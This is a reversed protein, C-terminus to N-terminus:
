HGLQRVPKEGKREEVFQENRVLMIYMIVVMHRAIAVIAKNETVGKALLKEYKNRFRESHRVAVRANQILMSRLLANGQKTIHGRRETNSSQYVSPVLGLYSCLKKYSSFRGIDCIESAVALSTLHGVGKMTVLLKAYADQSAMDRIRKDFDSIQKNFFELTSMLSAMSIRQMEELEVNRLFLLGKKGFAANAKFPNKIGEKTLLSKTQNKIRTRASVLSARYRVILRAQRYAKPPVYSEPIMDARLLQALIRADIKDTKIRASAIAKVKSPHAVKVICSESLVDYVHESSSSAEMVVQQEQTAQALELLGSDTNEFREERVLKGENDLFAAQCFDKHVDLGVYM